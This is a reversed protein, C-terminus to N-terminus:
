SADPLGNLRRFETAFETFTRGTEGAEMDALSAAVAARDEDHHQQEWWADFLSDLSAAPNEALKRKAFLNFDSLQEVSTNMVRYYSGLDSRTLPTDNQNTGIASRRSCPPERAPIDGLM